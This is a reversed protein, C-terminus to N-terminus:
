TRTNWLDVARARYPALFGGVDAANITEIDRMEDETWEISHGVPHFSRYEWGFLNYVDTYIMSHSLWLICSHLCLTLEVDFAAIDYGDHDFVIQNKCIMIVVPVGAISDRFGYTGGDHEWHILRGFECVCTFTYALREGCIDVHARLNGALIHLDCYNIERTFTGHMRDCLRIEANPPLSRVDIVDNVHLFRVFLGRWGRCVCSLASVTAHDALPILTIIHGVIDSYVGDMFIINDGRYEIKM